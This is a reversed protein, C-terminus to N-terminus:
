LVNRGGQTMTVRQPHAQLINVAEILARTRNLLVGPQVNQQLLEVETHVM